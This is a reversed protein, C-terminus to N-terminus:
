KNYKKNLIRLPETIRWSKSNIMRDIQERLSSIENHENSKSNIMGDIQERLSSIENSQVSNIDRHMNIANYFNTNIHKLQESLAIFSFKDSESLTKVRDSNISKLDNLISSMKNSLLYESSLNKHIHQAFKQSKEYQNFLEEVITVSDKKSYGRGSFNLNSARRYNDQNLYGPGGFHDYCYVPVGSLIAYQVTKGITIVVDAWLLDRPTILKFEHPKSIGFTKVIIGLDKLQNIAILIEEPVHNSVILIKKINKRYKKEALPINFYDPAPNNFVEGKIDLDSLKDEIYKKTEQSNFLILDALYKEVSPSFPFELPHFPSMHHFIVKAKLIKKEALELLQLPILNHHIWFLDINEFEIDKTSTHISVNKLKKFEKDIPEGYSHSLVHVRIGKLSFYEALELTVIESGAYNYLEGLTILISKPFSNIM